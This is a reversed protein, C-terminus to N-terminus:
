IHFIEQKSESSTQTIDFRFQRMHRSLQCFTFYFQLICILFNCFQLVAYILYFPFGFSRVGFPVFGLTFKLSHSLQAAFQFDFFFFQISFHIFIGLNSSFQFTFIIFQAIFQHLHTSMQRNSHRFWFVSNVSNDNGSLKQQQERNWKCFSNHSSHFSVRVAASHDRCEQNRTHPDFTSFPCSRKGAILSM